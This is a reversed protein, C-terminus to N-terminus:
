SLDTITPIDIRENGTYDCKTKLREFIRRATHRQKKPSQEDVALIAQIWAQVDVLAPKPKPKQL